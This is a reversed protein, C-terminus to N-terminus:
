AGALWRAAGIGLLGCLLCTVVTALLYGIGLAPQGGQLYRLTETNFTSYTTFGGLVGTTLAAMATPGLLGTGAALEILFAMAASGTANIGLTAWPFGPGLVRLAWASLLYRAGTGAAGGLCIWLLRTM